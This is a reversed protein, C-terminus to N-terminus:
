NPKYKSETFLQAANKAMLAKLSFDPHEKMWKKVIQWGVYMGINGPAADGLAATKPGDGIYDRVEKPNTIYLLNNQIFFSWITAEMAACDNLQQQTYGTKLSDATYPLVADLLYMRKGAEVMQEILPRNASTNPFADEVIVQVAKVPLYTPEFRRSLYTPYIKYVQDTQYGPYNKGLFAHLGIALGDRVAAVGVGDMPGVFTIIKAPLPLNPFYYKLFQFARHLERDEAKFNGFIKQANQYVDAYLSDELFYPLYKIVSDTNPELGLVNYLYDAIFFPYEKSISDLGVSLNGGKLAFLAQEFRQVKYQVEIAEVNPIKKSNGCACLVVAISFILLPKM